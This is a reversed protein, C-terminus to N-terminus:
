IHCITNPSKVGYVEAISLTKEAWRKHVKVENMRHEYASKQVGLIKDNWDLINKADQYDAYEVAMAEQIALLQTPHIATKGIFGNLKDLTLEANLGKLWDSDVNNDFYEWVPASVIYEQGFVNIIDALINNMVGIDYITNYKNRRFGFQNCLDNGGVRVNLVYNMINDLTGKIKTLTEARSELGIVSSSEIIPMVYIKGNKIQSNIDHLEYTFKDANVTDYKPLIFGTILEAFNKLKAFVRKMQSSDRVRIFILPFGDINLCDKNAFMYLESFTNILQKEAYEISDDNIADELCLAISKLNKNKSTIIDQAISVHTAPTYLLAGIAYKLIEQPTNKNWGM